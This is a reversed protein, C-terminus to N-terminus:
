ACWRIRRGLRALLPGYCGAALVALLPELPLRYRPLAHTAAHVASMFLILWLIPLLRRWGGEARALGLLAGLYIVMAATFAILEVAPHASGELPTWFRGLRELSRMLYHAPHAAIYDYAAAKRAENLAVPDKIDDFDLVSRFAGFDLGVTDFTPNNELRMVIGDGLDLRVFSGYKEYNHLWWPTMLVVYVAGYIALRRLALRWSLRETRALCVSLLLLPAALDLVPRTLIALVLAASGLWWRGRYLAVLAAMELFTYVTESLRMDAYFILVPHLAVLLGAVVAAARSAFVSEALAAALVATLASVLAQLWLIGGTGCLHILIPYLPMYLYSTTTGHAFLSNGDAVYVATDPWDAPTAALDFAIRAVLAVLFVISLTPM